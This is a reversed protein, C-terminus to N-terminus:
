KKKQNPVEGKIRAIKAAVEEGVEHAEKHSYKKGYKNQYEKPVSHGEYEKTVKKVLADFGIHGGKKYFAKYEKGNIDLKGHLWEKIDKYFAQDGNFTKFQDVNWPTGKKGRENSVFLHTMDIKRLYYPYGAVEVEVEVEEDTSGGEEKKDSTDFHINYWKTYSEPMKFFDSKLKVSAGQPEKGNEKKETVVIYDNGSKKKNNKALATLEKIYGRIDEDDVDHYNIEGGRYMQAKAKVGMISTFDSYEKKKVTFGDKKLEEIFAEGKAEDSTSKKKIEFGKLIEIDNPTFTNVGWYERIIDKPTKYVTGGEEMIEGDHRSEAYAIAKAQGEETVKNGHSDKLIGHKFEHMVKAFKGEPTEGGKSLYELGVVNKLSKIESVSKVHGTEGKPIWRHATKKFLEDAEEKSDLPTTMVFYGGKPHESIIAWKEVKTEGGKAYSKVAWGSEIKDVYLGDKDKIYEKAEDETDKVVLIMGSLNQKRADEIPLKGGEKYRQVTSDPYMMLYDYASKNQPTDLSYTDKIKEALERYTYVGKERLLFHYNKVAFQLMEREHPSMKDWDEETLIGGKAMTVQVDEEENNLREEEEAAAKEKEDNEIKYVLYNYVDDMYAACIALNNEIWAMLKVGKEIMDSIDTATKAINSCMSRVLEGGSEFKPNAVFFKLASHMDEMRVEVKSVKSIIWPKLDEKGSLLEEIEEAREKISYVNQLSMEKDYDAASLHESLTPTIIASEFYEPMPEVMERESDIDENDDNQSEEQEEVNQPFLEEMLESKREPTLNDFDEDSLENHAKLYERLKDDANQTEGGEDYAMEPLGYKKVEAAETEINHKIHEPIAKSFYKVEGEANIHAIKKPEGHTEESLNVVDIGKDTDIYEVKYGQTSGGKAYQGKEIHEEIGLKISKPLADFAYNTYHSTRGKIIKDALFSDSEFAAIEHAHDSIFHERQEPEWLDWVEAAKEGEYNNPISGGKAFAEEIVWGRKELAKIIQERVSDNESNLHPTANPVIDFFLDQGHAGKQTDGFREIHEAEIADIDGDTVVVVEGGEEFHLKKLREELKHGIEKAGEGVKHATEKAYKAAVGAGKKVAAVNKKSAVKKAVKTVDKKATKVAKNVKSEYKSFTSKPM